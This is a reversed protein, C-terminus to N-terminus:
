KKSSFDSKFEELNYWRINLFSIKDAPNIYFNELVRYFNNGLFNAFPLEPKRITFPMLSRNDFIEDYYQDYIDQTDYIFEMM